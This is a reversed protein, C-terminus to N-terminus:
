EQHEMHREVEIQISFEESLSIHLTNSMGTAAEAAAHLNVIVCTVAQHSDKQVDWRELLLQGGHQELL